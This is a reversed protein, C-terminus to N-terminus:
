DGSKVGAHKGEVYGNGAIFGGAILAISGFAVAEKGFFALVAVLTMAYMTVEYKRGRPTM